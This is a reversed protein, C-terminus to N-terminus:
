RPLRDLIAAMAFDRETLCGMKHTWLTVSVQRKWVSFNPHHNEREAAAALANVWRMADPFTAFRYTKCLKGERLEWGELAAFLEQSRAADLQVSRGECVDHHHDHASM